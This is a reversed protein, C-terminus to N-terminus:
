PGSPKPTGAFACALPMDTDFADARAALELNSILVHREGVHGTPGRGRGPRRESARSIRDV